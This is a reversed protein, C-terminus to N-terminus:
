TASAQNLKKEYRDTIKIFEAESIYSKPFRIVNKVYTLSCQDSVDKYIDVRKRREIYFQELIYKTTTPHIRPQRLKTAIKKKM